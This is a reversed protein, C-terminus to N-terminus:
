LAFARSGFFPQHDGPSQERVVTGQPVAGRAIGGILVSPMAIMIVERRGTHRLCRELFWRKPFQRPHDLCAGANFCTEFSPLTLCAHILVLHAGPRAPM